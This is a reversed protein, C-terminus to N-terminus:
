RQRMSTSRRSSPSCGKTTSSSANAGGGTLPAASAIGSLDTAVATEGSRFDGIVALERTAIFPPDARRPM